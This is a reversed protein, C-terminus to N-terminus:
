PVALREPGYRERADRGAICSNSRTSNSGTAVIFGMRWLVQCCTTHPVPCSRPSSVHLQADSVLCSLLFSFFCKHNVLFLSSFPTRALTRSGTCNDTDTAHRAVLLYVMGCFSRVDFDYKEDNVKSCPYVLCIGRARVCERVVSATLAPM